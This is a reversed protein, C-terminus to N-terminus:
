VLGTEVQRRALLIIIVIAGVVIFFWGWQGFFGIIGQSAVFMDTSGTLTGMIAERISTNGIGGAGSDGMGTQLITEGGWWFSTNITLVLPVLFLFIFIFLFSAIIFIVPFDALRPGAYVPAPQTYQKEQPPAMRGNEM